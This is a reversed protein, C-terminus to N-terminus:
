LMAYRELALQSSTAHALRMAADDDDMCDVSRQRANSDSYLDLATAESTYCTLQWVADLRPESTHM